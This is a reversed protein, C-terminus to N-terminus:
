ETYIKCIPLVVETVRHVSRKELDAEFHESKLM